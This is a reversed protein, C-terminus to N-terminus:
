NKLWKKIIYKRFYYNNRVIFVSMILGVTCVSILTTVYTAFGKEAIGHNITYVIPIVIMMLAIFLFVFDTFRIIISTSKYLKSNRFEEFKQKAHEAARARAKSRERRIWDKYIEEKNNKLFLNATHYRILFEYAENIKMFMESSNDSKNVDPHFEKAKIRYAKKIDDIDANTELGLINLYDEL